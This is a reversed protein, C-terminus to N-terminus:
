SAMNVYFRETTRLAYEIDETDFAMVKMNARIRTDLFVMENRQLRFFLDM